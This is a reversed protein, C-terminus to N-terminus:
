VHQSVTYLRNIVRAVTCLQLSKPFFLILGQLAFVVVVVFVIQTTCHLYSCLECHFEKTSCFFINEKSFKQLSGGYIIFWSRFKIFENVASQNYQM